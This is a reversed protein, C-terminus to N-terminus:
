RSGWYKKCAAIGNIVGQKIQANNASTQINSVTSDDWGYYNIGQAGSQCFSLSQKEIDQATPTIEYYGQVDTRTGAWAQVIGMLPVKNKDWGQRSLSDLMRPLLTSMSWDFATHPTRPDQVSESYIYIGVMDCGGPSYNETIGPAFLDRNGVGLEAGFGCISPMGPDETHIINTIERLLPKASGEDSGPWDDLIWYGSRLTTKKARAIEDKVLNILKQSDMGPYDQSCFNQLNLHQQYLRHCEYQYLYSSIEGDVQKIHLSKFTRGLDSNESYIGGYTFAQQIGDNAADYADSVKDIQFGATFYSSKDVKVLKSKIVPNAVLRKEQTNNLRQAFVATSAVVAIFLVLIFVKFYIRKM